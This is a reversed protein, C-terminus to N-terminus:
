SFLVNTLNSELAQEDKFLTDDDLGRQVLSPSGDSSFLLLLLLLLFYLSLVKMLEEKLELNDTDSLM